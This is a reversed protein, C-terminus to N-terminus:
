CVARAGGPLYEFGTPQRVYEEKELVGNLFATKIDYQWLRLGITKILLTRYSCVPSFIENFNLGPQQHDGGAALRAMYRGDHKRDLVIHSPLACEFEEWV